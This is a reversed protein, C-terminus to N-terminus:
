QSGTKPKWERALRQAEAIQESTMKEAIADRNQAARERQNKAATERNDSTLDSAALNYWVHAQIYDQPVGNGHAYMAALNYQAKSHGQEAAALYWRVAEKYNQPVGLGREYSFGLNLQAAADGQEARKTWEAVADLLKSAIEPSLPTAVRPYLDEADDQRVNETTVPPEDQQCGPLILTGLILVVTTM